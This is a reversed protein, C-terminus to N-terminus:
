IDTLWIIDKPWIDTPWIIDKPWIDKPSITKSWDVCLWFKVVM